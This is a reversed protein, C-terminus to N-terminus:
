RLVLPPNSLLSRITDKYTDVELLRTITTIRKGADKSSAGCHYVKMDATDNDLIIYRDHTRDQTTKFDITMTPYEVLFDNYESLKLLKLKNNSIITLQVGPKAHVLHQLTKAGIYDDVIIISKKASRYIKQYAVDAKFPQGDLILIEEHEIGSDFLKMFDSLDVKTVMSTKIEAIDESNSNVKDALAVYERQTIMLQQNEIIYDKMSKFIRILTKSQEIALDGKLVTMLMYIGQETFANPMKKMHMRENLIVNQSKLSDPLENPEIRFMFDEPFRNINRKVQQNFASVTYGYIEALDFDLMVQTGRVIYIKDKLSKEDVIMIENDAMNVEKFFVAGPHTGYDRKDQHVGAQLQARDSFVEINM